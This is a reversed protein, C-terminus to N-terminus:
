RGLAQEVKNLKDTLQAKEQAHHVRETTLRDIWNNESNAKTWAIVGSVSAGLVAAEIYQSTSSSSKFCKNGVWNIATWLVAGVAASVGTVFPVSLKKPIEEERKIKVEGVKDEEAMKREGAIESHNAPFYIM